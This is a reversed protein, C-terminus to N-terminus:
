AAYRMARDFILTLSEEPTARQHSAYEDVASEFMVTPTWIRGEESTDQNAVVNFTLPRPAAPPKCGALVLPSPAVLREGPVGGFIVKLRSSAPPFVREVVEPEIATRTRTIDALFVV